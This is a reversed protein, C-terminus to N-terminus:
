APEQGKSRVSRGRNCWTRTQSHCNGCLTRLNELRNDTHDGNIHDLQLVVPQGRWERLGCMECRPEKLGEALLRARLKSSPYDSNQSLVDALPRAARRPIDERRTWAYRDFHETDITLKKIRATVQRHMGGNPLYGLARAVDSVTESGAVVARFEEDTWERPRRPRSKGAISVMLHEHDVGLRRLHGLMAGYKGPRLGLRRHVEAM